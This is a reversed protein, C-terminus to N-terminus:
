QCLLFSARCGLFCCSDLRAVQVAAAGGQSRVLVEACEWQGALVALTLATEGAGNQVSPNAGAEVLLRLV